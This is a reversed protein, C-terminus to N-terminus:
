PPVTLVFGSVSLEDPSDPLNLNLHKGALEPFSVFDDTGCVTFVPESWYEALLGLQGYLQAEHSEYVCDRSKAASKIEMVTVSSSDTGPIVLDLHAKVPVAEHRVAIEMQRIFSVGFSELSREIGSELWHGRSLQLLNRLSKPKTGGLVKNLIVTRPCSMAGALDSLGLYSSRDGLELAAQNRSSAELGEALLALIENENPMTQEQFFYLGRLLPCSMFFPLNHSPRDPLLKLQTLTVGGSM